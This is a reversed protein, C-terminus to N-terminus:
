ANSRSSLRELVPAMRDVVADWTFRSEIDRRAAAGLCAAAAPDQLLELLADALADVSGPEVLRGTVGDSIMEPTGMQETAIVPLGFAMAELAVLPYPDFLSPVVFVSAEAYLAAIRRRDHVRGLVDVGAQATVAPDVGILQLRADPIVERVKQFAELLVLGGKRVFDNGIFLVTPPTARTTRRPGDARLEPLRSFNAGAGTVTVRAPDIGYDRVLSARAAESFAFLHEAAHYTERERRYWERLVWGRLPNWAPWLAASQAHTCDIYLVSPAHSLGFLAHIQLVVAPKQPLSRLARAANASRLRSAYTSKYFREVWRSRSPRFTLAAVQYRQAPSLEPDISAVFPFRRDLAERLYPTLADGRSALAVGGSASPASPYRSRVRDPASM